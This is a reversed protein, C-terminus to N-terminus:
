NEITTSEMLHKTFFEITNKHMTLHNELRETQHGEDEFIILDVEQRDAKMKEVMQESERVPVRTDNRGHFVFLPVKIKHSHNLPAIEVFFERDRDLSGYECERLRRRWEGTNELMTELHSIGVIDVGAAWLDPYHTLAALVMFGGYSRGMIGINGPDVGHTDILDKVLWELDRVSDMRKRADDLKLYSRGYGNSGRVNPAAVAFGQHVLFQIVPNYDAKSQGEPGGHVYIVAPKNKDHGQSYYFYPVELQDFSQYTCIKPAQGSRSIMESQSITTLRKLKKSSLSYKWIDGPITPTKLSFIFEDPNLWSISEIVGDPIGKIYEKENSDPLYLWLRSIGGENLTLALYDENPSKKLEGIDWKEWHLLKELKEPHEFTFRALYLTEEGLNTLVYGGEKSKMMVPSQYRAPYHDEGIRTKEKTHINLRYIASDINSEPIDIILHDQDLWSLPTCNGDYQFVERIEKTAVEVIFVDFYGPQRRNSSYSFYQGDPSWGGLYHFHELSEVLTELKDHKQDYLYIQQKENGKDDIGIVTMEGNPSHHISMPRDKTEIYQVPNQKENLTWIQPMGTIKSVFTFTEKKPIVQSKYAANVQLYELLEEQNIMKGEGM